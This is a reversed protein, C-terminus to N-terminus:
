QQHGAEINKDLDTGDSQKEEGDDDLHVTSKEIETEVNLKLEGRIVFNHSKTIFYRFHVIEVGPSPEQEHCTVFCMSEAGEINNNQQFTVQVEQVRGQRLEHQGLPPSHQHTEDTVEAEDGPEDEGDTVLGVTEGPVAEEGPSVEGGEEQHPGPVEEVEGEVVAHDPVDEGHGDDGDVVDGGVHAAEEEPRGWQYYETWLLSNLTKDPSPDHCHGHGRHVGVEQLLEGGDRARHPLVEPDQGAGGALEVRSCVRVKHEVGQDDTEECPRFLREVIEIM